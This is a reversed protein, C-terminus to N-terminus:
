DAWMLQQKKYVTFFYVAAGFMATTLFLIFWWIRAGITSRDVLICSAAMGFWIVLSAPAGLIGLIGGLVRLFSEGNPLAEIERFWPSVMFVMFLGMGVVAWASYQFLTYAKQSQLWKVM